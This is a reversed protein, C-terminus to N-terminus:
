GVSPQLISLPIMQEYEHDVWENEDDPTPLALPTEANVYLLLCDNVLRRFVQRSKAVDTVGFRDRLVDPFKSPLIGVVASAVEEDSPLELSSGLVERMRASQSETLIPEGFFDGIEDLQSQVLEVDETLLRSLDSRVKELM